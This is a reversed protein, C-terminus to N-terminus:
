HSWMYGSYWSFELFLGSRLFPGSPWFPPDHGLNSLYDTNGGVTISTFLRAVWIWYIAMGARMPFSINLHRFSRSSRSKAERNPTSRRLTIQCARSSWWIVNGECYSHCAPVFLQLVEIVCQGNIVTPLTSAQWVFPLQSICIVGPPPPPSLRRNHLEERDQSTSLDSAGIADAWPQFFFGQAMVLALLPIVIIYWESIRFPPKYGRSGHCKEGHDRVVALRLILTTINGSPTCMVIRIVGLESLIMEIDTHNGNTMTIITLLLDWAVGYSQPIM